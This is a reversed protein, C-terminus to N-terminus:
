KQFLPLSQFQQRSCIIPPAKLALTNRWAELSLWELGGLMDSVSSCQLDLGEKFKRLKLNRM